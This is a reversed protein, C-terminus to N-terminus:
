ARRLGAALLGSGILGGAGLRHILRRVRLGFLKRGTSSLLAYLTDNLVGLALFTAGLLVLQPVLPQKPEVFQPMFAVFFLIGKPNLVSVLFAKTALSRRAVVAPPIAELRGAERWMRAGLYILYAAGLWKVIMFLAASALLIAGAGALSLCMAILEGLFIGPIMALAAGRGRNLGTTVLLTVVPGPSAALLASAVVFSLWLEVTM